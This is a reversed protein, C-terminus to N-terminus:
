ANYFYISVYEINKSRIDSVYIFAFLEYIKIYKKIDDFVIPIEASRCELA